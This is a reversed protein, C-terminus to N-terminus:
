LSTAKPPTITILPKLKLFTKEGIGRVNMIDEVKKFGGNKQRYELIRTATAAGVGPLTQLEASSATNINVAAVPPKEKSPPAQGAPAAKASVAVAIGAFVLATSVLSAFARVMQVSLSM